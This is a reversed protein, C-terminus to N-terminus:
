FDAVRVAVTMPGDPSGFVFTECKPSGETASIKCTTDSKGAKDINVSVDFTTGCSLITRDLAKCAATTSNGATDYIVYTATYSATRGDAARYLGARATAEPGVEAPSGVVPDLLAGSLQANGQRKLVRKPGLTNVMQVELPLTGIRYRAIVKSGEKPMNPDQLCTLWAGSTCTSSNTSSWYPMDYEPQSSSDSLSMPSQGSNLFLRAKIGATEGTVGLFSGEKAGQGAFQMVATNNFPNPSLRGNCERDCDNKGHLVGWYGSKNEGGLASYANGSYFKTVTLPFRGWEGPRTTFRRTENALYFCVSMTASKYGRDGNFESFCYDDGLTWSPYGNGGKSPDVADWDSGEATGASREVETSPSSGPGESELYGEYDSCAALILAGCAMLAGILRRHSRRTM